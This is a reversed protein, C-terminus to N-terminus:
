TSLFFFPDSATISSRFRTLPNPPSPLRCSLPFLPPLRWDLLLLAPFHIWEMTPATARALAFWVKFWAPVFQCMERSDQGGKEPRSERMEKRREKKERKKRKTHLDALSRSPGIIVCQSGVRDKLAYAKIADGRSSLLYTHSKYTKGVDM